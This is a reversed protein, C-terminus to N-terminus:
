KEQKAKLKDGAKIRSDGRTEFEATKGQQKDTHEKTSSKKVEIVKDVYSILDQFFKIAPNDYVGMEGNFTDINAKNRAMTRLQNLEDITMSLIKYPHIKSNDPHRYGKAYKHGKVAAVLTADVKKMLAEDQEADTPDTGLAPDAAADDAGQLPSQGAAPDPAAGFDGAGLNDGAGVGAATEDGQGLASAQGISQATRELDAEIDATGAEMLKAFSAAKIEYLHM